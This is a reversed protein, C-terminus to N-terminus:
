PVRRGSVFHSSQIGGVRAQGGPRLVSRHAAVPDVPVPQSETTAVTSVQLGVELSLAERRGLPLLPGAAPQAVQQALGRARNGVIAIVPTGVLLSGGSRAPEVVQRQEVLLRESRCRLVKEVWASSATRLQDKVGAARGARRDGGVPGGVLQAARQSQAFRAGGAPGLGGKPPRAGGERAPHHLGVRLAPPGEMSEIENLALDVEGGKMERCLGRGPIRRCQAAVTDLPQGAVRDGEVVQRAEHELEPELQRRQSGHDRGALLQCWIHAAQHALGVATSDVLLVARDVVRDEGAFAPM